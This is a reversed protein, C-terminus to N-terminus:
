KKGNQDLGFNHHLLVYGFEQEDSDWGEPMREVAIHGARVARRLASLVRDIWYSTVYGRPDKDHLVEFRGMIEGSFRIHFGGRAAGRTSGGLRTIINEIETGKFVLHTHGGFLRVLDEDVSNAIPTSSTEAHISSQTTHKLKVGSKKANKAIQKKARLEKLLQDFSESYEKLDELNEETIIPNAAETSLPECPAIATEEGSAQPIDDELAPTELALLELGLNKITSM